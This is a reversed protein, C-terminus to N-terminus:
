DDEDETDVPRIFIPDTSNNMWEEDGARWRRLHPEAGNKWPAPGVESQKQCVLAHRGGRPTEMIVVTFAGIDDDPKEDLEIEDEGDDTLVTVTIQGDFHRVQTVTLDSKLHNMSVVDGPEIDEVASFPEVLHPAVESLVQFLGQKGYEDKLAYRGPLDIEQALSYLESQTFDDVSM